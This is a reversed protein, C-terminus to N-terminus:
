KFGPSRVHFRCDQPFNVLRELDFIDLVAIWRRSFNQHARYSGADAVGVQM